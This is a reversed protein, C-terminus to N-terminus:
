TVTTTVTSQVRPEYALTPEHRGRLALEDAVVWRKREEDSARAVAEESALVGGPRTKAAETLRAAENVPDGIVTYEYRHAAGINGAAVDGASVGIGAVLEPHTLSLALLDRRLTRAARLARTAHDAQAAPAGFVCLAADGEFKNVWGGEQEIRDVVTAFFTNLLALVEDAPRSQALRSSGVLDVFVVSAERREGGLRVGEERALHAVETGVHRGFLDELARRDRLGAVMRNFGAQLQGVEGGDDVPVDADLDDRQVRALAGRITGLPESVSRAAITIMVAGAVIGVAALTWVAVRLNPNNAPSRGVFGLAIILLPIASGLAWSVLLRTRIGFGELETPAEIAFMERFVPRMAQELLLFAIGATTLGGLVITSAVRLSYLFSEGEVIFNLGGFIVAAGLWYAFSHYAQRLPLRLLQRREVPGLAAGRLRWATVAHLDQHGAMAGVPLMVALYGLFVFLDLPRHGFNSRTSDILTGTYFSLVAGIGNALGLRTLVSTEVDGWRDVVRKV